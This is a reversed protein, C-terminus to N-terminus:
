VMRETAWSYDHGIKLTGLKTPDGSKTYSILTYYENRGGAQPNRAGWGLRDCRQFGELGLLWDNVLTMHLGPRLWAPDVHPELADTAGVVIDAGFVAEQEAVARVPVGLEGEMERAFGERHEETPSYVLIETLERVLTHARVAGKAHWGSGLVGLTTAEARAMYKTGLAGVAAVRLWQVYGQPMMALLEGTDMSYLHIMGVLANGPLPRRSVSRQVGEVTPWTRIVSTCQFACASYRPYLGEMTKFLYAAPTGDPEDRAHLLHSIGRTAALGEGADAFAQELVALALPMSLVQAVDANSLVRMADVGEQGVM